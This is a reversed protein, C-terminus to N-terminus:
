ADRPQARFLYNRIPARVSGTEQWEHQWTHMTYGRQVLWGALDDPHYEFRATHREEIELLLTPRFTEITRQGGQLVALEAGEVDIKIFDLRTLRERECLADLTDIEVTVEMQKAFEANSGVGRCRAALFSRGTVPGYRGVPVSMLGTGAEDALAVAHHQVNSAERARLVRTWVPHAFSLPEVSHVRGSPGALRSLALTYLGAASGVDICVSGPGVLRRLGLMEAELYPTRRALLMVAATTLKARAAEGLRPRPWSPM